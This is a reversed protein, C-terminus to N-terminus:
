VVEEYGNEIQSIAIAEAAELVALNTSFSWQPLLNLGIWDQLMGINLGTPDPNFLKRPPLKGCFLKICERQRDIITQKTIKTKWGSDPM